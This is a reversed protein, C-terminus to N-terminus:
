AYSENNNKQWYAFALLAPFKEGEVDPRYIDTYLHIGDRMPVRVDKELKVSYVPQTEEGKIVEPYGDFWRGLLETGFPVKEAQARQGTRQVTLDNGQFIEQRTTKKEM